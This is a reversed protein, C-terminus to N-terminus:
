ANGADDDSGVRCSELAARAADASPYAKSPDRSLCRVVFDDLAPSLEPKLERPRGMSGKSRELEFVSHGTLMEFLVEGFMVLDAQMASPATGQGESERSWEGHVAGREEDGAAFRLARALGFDLIVARLPLASGHFRPCWLLVNDSRLDGHSVGSAHAAGLGALLQRAVVLGKVLPLPGTSRLYQRLSQGRILEMTLFLESDGGADVAEVVEHLRCVNVHCIRAARRVEDELRDLGSQRACWNAALRKVAVRKGNELQVAEYVEGTAGEGILRAVQYRRALVTGQALAQAGPARAFMRRGEVFALLEEASSSCDSDFVQVPLRPPGCLERETLELAERL